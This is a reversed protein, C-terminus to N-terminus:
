EIQFSGCTFQADIAHDGGALVQDCADGLLTITQEDSLTWGSGYDLVVGDLTVVGDAAAAPDVSGNLTFSCTRVGTIIQDFASVLQDANLAQYYPANQGGGVTLGVGANAMDQLHAQSVDSGVSIIFTDIGAAHANQAAAIALAKAAPQGDPDPVACTDPEGDTALVIIKPGPDSLQALQARMVDLSEATPTDDIPDLGRYLADIAGLNGVAPATTALLPCGVGPKGTFATFGFRVQNQLRAVVGSSGMLTDYVADWRSRGAFNQDMTGSRDVLLMVTPTTQTLVARAEACTGADAFSAGGGGGGPDDTAPGDDGGGAITSSCAATTLLALLAFRLPRAPAALTPLM